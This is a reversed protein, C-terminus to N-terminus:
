NEVFGFLWNDKVVMEKKCIGCQIQTGKVEELYSHGPEIGPREYMSIVDCGQCSATFVNKDTLHKSIERNDNVGM